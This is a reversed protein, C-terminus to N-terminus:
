PCMRITLKRDSNVCMRRGGKVTVAAALYLGDARSKLTETIAALKLDPDDFVVRLGGRITTVSRASLIPIGNARLQVAKAVDKYKFTLKSGDIRSLLVKHQIAGKQLCNATSSVDLGTAKVKLPDCFFKTSSSQLPPYCKLSADYNWKFGVCAKCTPKPTTVDYFTGTKCTPSSTGYGVKKIAPSGVSLPFNISVPLMPSLALQSTTVASDATVIEGTAKTFEFSLPPPPMQDIQWAAGYKNTLNDGELYRAAATDTAAAAATGSAALMKRGSAASSSAGTSNSPTTRFEASVWTPAGSRSTAATAGAVRVVQLGGTGAISQVAFKFFGSGTSGEGDIVELAMKQPPRCDVPRYRINIRGIDMPALRAFTLAQIDMHEAGCEPCADTIQVVISRESSNPHCRGQFAPAGDDVCQVEFCQGCGNVPGNVYFPNKVSLAAVSWYPWQAKDLVGSGCAGNLTGYSPQWPNLGDFSSGYNTAITDEDGIWDVAIATPLLSPAIFAASVVALLVCAPSPKTHGRRHGSVRAM